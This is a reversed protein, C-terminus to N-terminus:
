LPWALKDDAFPRWYEHYARVRTSTPPDHTESHGDMFLVNLTGDHRYRRRLWVDRANPGIVDALIKNYDLLLVKGSDDRNLKPM